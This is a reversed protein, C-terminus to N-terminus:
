VINSNIVDFIKMELDMGELHRRKSTSAELKVKKGCLNQTGIVMFGPQTPRLCASETNPHQGM